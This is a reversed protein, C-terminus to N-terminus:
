AMFTVMSPNAATGLIPATPNVAPKNAKQPTTAAEAAVIQGATVAVAATGGGPTNAAPGNIIAVMSGVTAM